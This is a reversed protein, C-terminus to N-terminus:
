YYIADRSLHGVYPEDNECVRRLFAVACSGKCLVYTQLVFKLVVSPFADPTESGFEESEHQCPTMWVLVRWIPM